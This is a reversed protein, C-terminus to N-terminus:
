YDFTVTKYVGPDVSECSRFLLQQDEDVAVQPLVRAQIDGKGRIQNIGHKSM